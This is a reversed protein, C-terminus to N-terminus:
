RHCLVIKILFYGAHVKMRGNLLVEGSLLLKTGTLDREFPNFVSIQIQYTEGPRMQNPVGTIEIRPYDISITAESHIFNTENVLGNIDIRIMSFDNALASKLQDSRVTEQFQKM